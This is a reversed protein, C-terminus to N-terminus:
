SFNNKLSIIVSDGKIESQHILLTESVFKDRSFLDHKSQCSIILIICIFFFILRM